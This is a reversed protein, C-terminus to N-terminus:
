RILNKANIHSKFHNRRWRAIADDLLSVDLPKTLIIDLSLTRDFKYIIGGVFYNLVQGANVLNLTKKTM